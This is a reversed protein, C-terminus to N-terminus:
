DKMNSFIFQNEISGYTYKYKIHNYPNDVGPGGLRHMDSIIKKKEKKSFYSLWHGPLVPIYHLPPRNTKHFTWNFQSLPPHSVPAKLFLVSKLRFGIQSPPNKGPHIIFYASKM